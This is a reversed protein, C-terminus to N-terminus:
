HLVSNNVDLEFGNSYMLLHKEEKILLFFCYQRNPKRAQFFKIILNSLTIMLSKIPNCIVLLFICLFPNTM